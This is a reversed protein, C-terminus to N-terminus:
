KVLRPIPKDTERKMLLFTLYMKTPLSLAMGIAVLTASVIIGAIGLNAMTESFHLVTGLAIMTLGTLMLLRLLKILNQDSM